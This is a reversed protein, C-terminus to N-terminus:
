SIAELFQNWKDEINLLIEQREIERAKIVEVHNLETVDSERIQPSNLNFM